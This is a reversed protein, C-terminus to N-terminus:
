RKRDKALNKKTKKKIYKDLGGSEKLTEYKKIGAKLQNRREEREAQVEDEKAQDHQLQRLQNETRQILYKISKRREPDEEELLQEKLFKLDTSKYKNVFKYNEKFLKEDYDGCSPDFRPDRKEIKSSSVVERFRGVQKKSSM